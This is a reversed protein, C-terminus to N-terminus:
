EGSPKPSESSNMPSNKWQSQYQEVKQWSQIFLPKTYQEYHEPAVRSYMLIGTAGTCFIIALAALNNLLDSM